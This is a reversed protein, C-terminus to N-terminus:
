GKSRSGTRKTGSKKSASKRSAGKKLPKKEAIANLGAERAERRAQDAAEAEQFRKAREENLRKRPHVENVKGEARLLILLDQNLQLTVEQTILLIATRINWLEPIM